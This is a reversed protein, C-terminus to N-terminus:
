IGGSLGIAKMADKFDRMNRLGDLFAHRCDRYKRFASKKDKPVHHAPNRYRQVFMRAASIVTDANNFQSAGQLAVLVSALRGKAQAKTIWGKRAADKAARMILGELLEALNAVGAPANHKYLDFCERARRKHVQPLGEVDDKFQSEPIHQAIPIAPFKATVNGAADVTFLGFGHLALDAADRQNQTYAEEPCAAYAAIPAPVEAMEARRMRLIEPYPKESAEILMLQNNVPCSITPVWGLKPDVVEDCKIPPNSYTSLLYQKVSARIFDTASSIGAM